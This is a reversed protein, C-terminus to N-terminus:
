ESGNGLEREMFATVARGVSRWTSYRLFDHIEDPILIEEFRVGQARLRQVLDVTQTVPVNRDDDGHILLVPSRWSAIDAVPSSKWAVALALDLDAPKQYQAKLNTFYDGYDTIWDHVGHIDVGAAFVDSNRALALATLYGGYSGGWIGIRKPDVDARGALYRAAALVDQYESAGAPGAHDPNMFRDGYGIGLRYNVSTVVFGRSAFYQNVAYDSAYYHWYHFGLLMQRPPGGHVYILAPRPASDSGADPRRFLQMHIPTGDVSPIVVREPEVLARTPFEAPIRDQGLLQPTGGDVPLVAPLPPRRAGSTLLAVTRGDGTVVPGWELDTGQTLEVPSAADVPVRFLHRRDDDSSDPGANANYVLFRRDPSLSVFEVMYDGRTLLLPDGGAVSISYLHPWGDLNALFVLRGAAGWALNVGGQTGPRSGLISNPSSWVTRAAGSAVAVVRLSWPDPHQELLTEPTGGRGPQSVFAIESGDPSWRPSSVRDTAPALWRIPTDASAYLGLLSYTGRNSVFALTAGDPSWALEDSTGRGFFLPETKGEPALPVSWVQRDDVYAVRDGLPSVAPQDGAALMRGGGGTWPATWIEVRNRQTGSAPNPEIGGPSPWNSGHDGGRVFVLQSGDATFALQTLELGDDLSFTTLQRTRWSPGEAAWVNRVGHDELVWAMRQGTRATVLETPFPFATIQDISYPEAVSLTPLAVLFIAAWRLAVRPTRSSM